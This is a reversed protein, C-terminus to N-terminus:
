TPRSIVSSIAAVGRVYEGPGIRLEPQGFGAVQSIYVPANSAQILSSLEERREDRPNITLVLNGNHPAM